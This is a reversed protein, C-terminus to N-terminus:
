RETGPRGDPDPQLGVSNLVLALCLYMGIVFLLELLEQDDFREALRSWTDDDIRHADIMQDVALLLDRDDDSWPGDEPSSEVATIEAETLGTAAGMRIHQAWEYECRTRCAVRLILLERTRPDIVPDDLLGGNLALWNGALQPHHSLLGLIGPMPPADAAGSLYRDAVALHGRLLDRTEPQMGDATLPTM